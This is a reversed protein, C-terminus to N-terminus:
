AEGRKSALNLPGRGGIFHRVAAFNDDALSQYFAILTARATETPLPGYLHPFLDGKRSPEWKLADGLADPEVAVLALACAVDSYHLKLTEILQHAASFHIFGDEKDKASGAFAGRRMAQSWDDALAIKYIM